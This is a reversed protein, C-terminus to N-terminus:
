AGSVQMLFPCAAKVVLVVPSLHTLDTTQFVSCSPLAHINPTCTPAIPLGTFQIFLAGPAGTQSLGSVTEHEM